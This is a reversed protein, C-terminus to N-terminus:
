PKGGNPTTNATRENAAPRETLEAKLWDDIATALQEHAPPEGAKIEAPPITKWLEGTKTLRARFEDVYYRRALDTVVREFDAAMRDYAKPDTVEPLEERLIKKYQEVTRRTKQRVKEDLSKTLHDTLIEGQNSLVRSYEPADERIQETVADAVRPAAEAAVDGLEAMMEDADDAFQKKFAAVYKEERIAERYDAIFLFYVAAGAVVVLVATLLGVNFRAQALAARLPAADVVPTPQPPTPADRAPEFAM